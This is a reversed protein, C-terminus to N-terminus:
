IIKVPNQLNRLLCNADRFRYTKFRKDFRRTFAGDQLPIFIIHLRNCNNLLIFGCSVIIM